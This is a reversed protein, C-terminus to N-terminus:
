FTKITGTDLWDDVKFNKAIPHHQFIKRLTRISFYTEEILKRQKNTFEKDYINEEIKHAPDQRLRRIKKLPTFIEKILNSNKSKFTTPLWEEFLRLTGKSKKEVLGNDRPLSEYLDIKGEFFKHSINESILKDLQHVFDNYNKLTPIFFFTFVKLSKEEQYNKKLIPIGWIEFSLENLAKLEGLLGTFISYSNTWEGNIINEYYESLVSCEGTVEKSKWYIQHEATLDKLYTLYVVALRNKDLDFGLGFDKLFVDDEDRLIRVNNVDYKCSIQGSYDEFQFDFRPDSFYRDLVEIDFFIPKLHPEGLALQKSYVASEFKSLDRNEKLFKQSPYLCIPFETNESSFSMECIVEVIQEISKADELIKIQSEIPYHKFGVIHPNTGSQISITEENVLEKILEISSKYDIQFEESINRLPM